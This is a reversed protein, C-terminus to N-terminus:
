DLVHDLETLVITRLPEPTGAKQSNKCEMYGQAVGLAFAGVLGAAAALALAPVANLAEPHREPIAPEAARIERPAATFSATATTVTLLITAAFLRHKKM